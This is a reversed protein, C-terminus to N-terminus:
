PAAERREFVLLAYRCLRRRYCRQKADGGVLMRLYGHREMLRGGLRVALAILRDRPRGIRLWGTLDVEKVCAWGSRGALGLIEERGCLGPLLWNERYRGLLRLASPSVRGAAAEPALLDDIVALRGGPPLLRAVSEFFRAPLASHAFSEIAYAFDSAFREPPLATFDATEFRFRGPPAAAPIAAAAAAAQVPSVTVGVLATLQPLRRGQYFLGAGVGCGLDLVRAVPRPSFEIERAILENAHAMAQALTRVGPAWLAAHLNATGEDRGWKLFRGTNRDYYDRVRGAHPTEELRPPTPTAPHATRPPM